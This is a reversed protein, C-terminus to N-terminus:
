KFQYIRSIFINPHKEFVVREIEDTNSPRFLAWVASYIKNRQSLTQVVSSFHSFAVKNIHNPRCDM